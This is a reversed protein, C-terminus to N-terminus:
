PNKHRMQDKWLLRDIEIMGFHLIGSMGNLQIKLKVTLEECLSNALFELEGFEM